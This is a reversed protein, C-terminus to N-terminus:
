KAYKATLEATPRSALCTISIQRLLTPRGIMVAQRPPPPLMSAQRSFALGFTCAHMWAAISFDSGFCSPDLGSSVGVAASIALASGVLKTAGGRETDSTVAM